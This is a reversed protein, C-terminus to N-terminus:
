SVIDGETESILEECKPIQYNKSDAPNEKYEHVANGELHQVSFYDLIIGDWLLIVNHIIYLGKVDVNWFSGSAKASKSKLVSM